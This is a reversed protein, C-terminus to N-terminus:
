HDRGHGHDGNDGRNDHGHNGNDGHNDHGHNGNDGHNGHDGQGHNDNGHDRRWQNYQPHGPNQYYRQDRSDRIAEQDHRGAYSHYQNHYQSHNMWPDRSDNIVVKHAHYLDINRYRGPLSSHYRWRGGDMYVFSRRGVDYYADADPLYYYDARDYGTPGWAPQVGINFSVSVQAETMQWSCTIFGILVLIKKM